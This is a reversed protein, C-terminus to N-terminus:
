VPELKYDGSRGSSHFTSTSAGILSKRHWHVFSPNDEAFLFGMKRELFLSHRVFAMWDM